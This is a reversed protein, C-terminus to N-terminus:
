FSKIMRILPIRKKNPLVFDEMRGDVKFGFKNYFEIAGLNYEAVGFEIPKDCGLWNLAKEFLRAGIGLGQYQSLVYLSGLKNQDGGKEASCMGIVEGGCKAVWIHENDVNGSVINRMRELREPNLTKRSKLDAETIGYQESVYTDLWVQNKITLAADADESVMDSIEINKRVYEQIMELYRKDKERGYERVMLGKWERIVSLNAFKFGSFKFPSQFIKGYIKERGPWASGIDINIGQINIKYFKQEPNNHFFVVQFDDDPVFDDGVIIDLDNIKEVDKLDLVKFLYLPASGFVVFDCDIKKKLEMLVPLINELFVRNIEM